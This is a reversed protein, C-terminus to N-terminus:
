RGLGMVRGRAELKIYKTIKEQSSSAVLELGETTHRVDVRM